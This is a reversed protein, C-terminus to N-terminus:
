TDEMLTISAPDFSMIMQDVAGPVDPGNQIVEIAVDGDEHDDHVITLSITTYDSLMECEFRYGLSLLKGAKAAVAHPRDINVTKKRGDPMLYQTFEIDPM